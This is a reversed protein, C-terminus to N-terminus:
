STEGDEPLADIYAMCEDWGAFRFEGNLELILQPLGVKPASDGSDSEGLTAEWCRYGNWGPIERASDFGNKRAFQRATM